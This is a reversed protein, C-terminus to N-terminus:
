LEFEKNFYEVNWGSTLYGGSFGIRNDDFSQPVIQEHEKKHCNPCLPIFKRYDIKEFKGVPPTDVEHFEFFRPTFPKFAPHGIGCKQCKTVGESLKRYKKYKIKERQLHIFLEKYQQIETATRRAWWIFWFESHEKIDYLVWSNINILKCEAFVRSRWYENMSPLSYLVDEDIINKTVGCQIGNVPLQLYSKNICYIQEERTINSVKTLEGAVRCFGIIGPPAYYNKRYLLLITEGTRLQPYKAPKRISLYKFEDASRKM